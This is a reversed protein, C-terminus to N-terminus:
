FDEIQIPKSAFTNDNGVVWENIFKIFYWYSQLTAAVNHSTKNEPDTLERQMWWRSGSFELVGELTIHSSEAAVTIDDCRCQVNVIIIHIFIIYCGALRPGSTTTINPTLTGSRRPETVTSRSINGEVTESRFPAEGGFVPM